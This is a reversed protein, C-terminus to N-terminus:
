NQLTRVQPLQCPKTLSLLINKQLGEEIINKGLLYTESEYYNKDFSVGLLDYTKEFGKYVWDNMMKWVERTEKVNSEWKSLEEKAAKMISTNESALDKDMGSDILIKMQEKHVKDFMIYYEGVFKDGKILIM